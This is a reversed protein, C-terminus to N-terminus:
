PKGGMSAGSRSPTKGSGSSSGSSSSSSSGTTANYSASAIPNPDLASGKQNPDFVMQTIVAEGERDESSKRHVTIKVNWLGTIGNAQCEIKWHWDSDGEFDGEGDQLQTIGSSVEALKAQCLQTARGQIDNVRDGAFTILRGIAVMAFLFITLALIVELLTLGPRPGMRLRLTRAASRRGAGVSRDYNWHRLAYAPARM